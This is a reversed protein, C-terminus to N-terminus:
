TTQLFSISHFLYFVCVFIDSHMMCLLPKKQQQQERQESVDTDTNSHAHLTCAHSNRAQRHVYAPDGTFPMNHEPVCDLINKIWQM